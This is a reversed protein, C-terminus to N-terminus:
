FPLLPPSLTTSNFKGIWQQLDLLLLFNNNQKPMINALLIQSIADKDCTILKDKIISSIPFFIPLNNIPLLM